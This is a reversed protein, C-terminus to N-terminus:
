SNGKPPTWGNERAWKEAREEFYERQRRRTEEVHKRMGKGGCSGCTSHSSHAEDHWHSECIVMRLDGWSM